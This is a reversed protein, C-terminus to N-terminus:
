LLLYLFALQTILRKHLTINLHIEIKLYFYGVHRVELKEATFIKHM